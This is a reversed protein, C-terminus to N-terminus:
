VRCLPIEPSTDRFFGSTVGSKIHGAAVDGEQHVSDVLLMNDRHPLIGKIEEQYM